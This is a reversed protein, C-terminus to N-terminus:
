ERANIRPSRTRVPELFAILDAAAMSAIIQTVTGPSARRGNGEEVHRALTRAHLVAHERGARDGPASILSTMAEGLEQFVPVLTSRVTVDTALASRTLVLLSSGLLELHWAAGTEREVAEGRSRWYLSHRVIRGGAHMMQRLEGLRDRLVRVSALM